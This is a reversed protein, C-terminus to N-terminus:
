LAYLRAVQRRLDELEDRIALPTLVQVQHRFTLLWRLFPHTDRVAFEIVAGGSDDMEEVPTGVRQAIVWRAEPFAFRATVATPERESLEWPARGLYAAIDFDAPVDFRSAKGVLLEADSMRDVRFVRLAARDRANAVCYWRSWNFFLGYPEIDRHGEEGRRITYYRCRVATRTAVGRQLVALADQVPSGTPAMLVREISRLPIPLDFELKCRASRAAEALPLETREAIRRTARDLVVLDHPTVALNKLGRYPRDPPHESPRLELYPLYLGASKLRYGVGPEDGEADPVKVIELDIGLTRLEDKDREFTRRASERAREGADDSRRMGYGQVHEFIQERTVPLRHQLLFAILDLWRATKPTAM